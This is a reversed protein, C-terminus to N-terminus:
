TNQLKEHHALRCEACTAGDASGCGRWLELLGQMRLANKLYIAPNHDGGLLRFAMEKMSSGPEEGPVAELLRWSSGDEAALLPIVANVLIANIRAPGLLGKQAAARPPLVASADRAASMFTKAALKVWTRANVRPLARLSTWLADGGAFLASAVALRMRPHNLPRVAATTWPVTVRRCATGCRAAAAWLRVAYDHPVGGEGDKPLLGASSLLLAYRELPDAHARLESLPVAAALDRMPAVNRSFGLGAMTEEYFGTGRLAIEGAKRRLRARGIESLAAAVDAPRAGVFANRCPRDIDAGALWPYADPDIQSFSFGRRAEMAESLLALPVDPIREARRPAFWAVHLVVDGYGPDSDHGHAFWDGAHVHIEVSGRRVKGGVSVVAGRFDPGGSGNWAGPEIVEVDEGAVTRLVPRLRADAWICQLHRENWWVGDSSEPPERVAADGRLCPPLEFAASSKM